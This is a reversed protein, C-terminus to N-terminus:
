RRRSRPPTPAMRNAMGAPLIVVKRETGFGESATHVETRDRLTLHVVRRERPNMPGLPFPSGSEVVRDAAVQAMLRLEQIREQRWGLCDFTIKGFLDEELRVAKLVVYEIANLLEAHAELLLDSDLGSFDVMVEPSEPGYEGPPIDHIEFKLSFRGFEILQRVLSEIRPLYAAIPKTVESLPQSDM